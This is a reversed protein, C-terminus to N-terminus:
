GLRGFRVNHLRMGQRQDYNNDRIWEQVDELLARIDSKTVSRGAISYSEVRMRTLYRLAEAYAKAKTGSDDAYYDENAAAQTEAATISSLAM